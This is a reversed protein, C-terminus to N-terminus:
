SVEILSFTSSTCLKNQPPLSVLIQETCKTALTIITLLSPVVLLSSSWPLNLISPIIKSQLSFQNGSLEGNVFHLNGPLRESHVSHGCGLYRFFLSTLNAPDPPVKSSFSMLLPPLHPLNPLWFLRCLYVHPLPRWIALLLKQHAFMKTSQSSFLQNLTKTSTIKCLRLSNSHIVSCAHNQYSTCEVNMAVTLIYSCRGFIQNRDNM